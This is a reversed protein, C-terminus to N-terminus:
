GCGTKTVNAETGVPCTSCSIMTSNKYQGAQCDVSPPPYRLYVM